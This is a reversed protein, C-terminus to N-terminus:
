GTTVSSAGTLYAHLDKFYFSVEGPLFSLIALQNQRSTRLGGRFSCAKHNLQPFLSQRHLLYFTRITVEFFTLILFPFENPDEVYRVSGPAALLELTLQSPLSIDLRTVEFGDLISHDLPVPLTSM